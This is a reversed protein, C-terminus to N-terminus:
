RRKRPQQEERRVRAIERDSRARLRRNERTTGAPYGNALDEADEAQDALRGLEKALARLARPTYIVWEPGIRLFAAGPHEPALEAVLQAQPRTNM